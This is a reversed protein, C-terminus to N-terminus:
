RAWGHAALTGCSAFVLLLCYIVLGWALGKVFGALEHDSRPLTSALEEALYRVADRM